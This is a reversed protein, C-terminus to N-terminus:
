ANIAGFEKFVATSGATGSVTCVTGAKNGAIPYSNFIIEGRQFEGAVPEAGYTISREAAGSGLLLRKTFLHFKRFKATNEGSLGFAERLPSGRSLMVFNGATFNMSWYDSTADSSHSFLFSADGGSGAVFSHGTKDRSETTFRAGTLEGGNVGKIASGYVVDGILGGLVLCPGIFSSGSSGGESYCGILVNRANSNTCIYAGGNFYTGEPKGIEWLPITPHTSGSGSDVWISADTGPETAALQTETAQPHASYRRGGFSVFSSSDAANYGVGAVGNSVCHHASHTNGLFSHDAIGYRGNGVANVANFYGANADYGDVRLGDEGNGNVTVASVWTNNANGQPDPGGFTQAGPGNSAAWVAIGCGRFGSVRVNRIVCRARAWIGHAIRDSGGGGVLWLGEIISADAATTAIAEIGNNLTNYRNVVIGRVDAPFILKAPSDSQKGSARGWLRVSAKLEIAEGIFYEGSPFFISPGSVYWPTGTREVDILKKLKPYDDTVGDAAPNMCAFNYHGAPTPMVYLKVGGATTLQHDTADSAAVKYAFGESRTRVFDGALISGTQGAVYTLATDAVLLPVTAVFYGEYLAASAASAAAAIASANAGSIDTTTPGNALAAGDWVIAKTDEPVPFDSVEGTFTLPMRLSRDTDERIDQDIMRGRDWVGEVVGANYATQNAVSVGQTAPVKRYVTIQHTSALASGAKPYIVAGGNSEGLGSITYDAADVTSVVGTAIVTLKVNASAADPINFSYAWSTTADNGTYTIKRDTNTITM